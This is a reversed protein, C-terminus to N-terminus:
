PLNKNKDSFDGVFSDTYKKIAIDPNIEKHRCIDAVAFLIEGMSDEDNINGFLDSIAKAQDSYEAAFGEAAAKKQIKCAKTFPPLDKPLAMISSLASKNKKEEQKIQEWSALAEDASDAHVDSFVHPHRRLLKKVIGNVVDSLTFEGLEEAIQSHFVIQLLMDGLEEILNDLDQNNIAEVVEYAEEIINQRISEHTQERDWSCGDENYKLATLESEPPQGRLIRMIDLLAEIDYLKKAFNDLPLIIFNVSFDYLKQRDMDSLCIKAYKTDPYGYFYLIEHDDPYLELLKLKLESVLFKNDAETICTSIHTNVLSKRFLHAPIVSMGEDAIINAIGAFNEAAGACSVMHVNGAFNETIKKVLMDGICPSGPVCLLVDSKEAEGCIYKYMSDYMDDFSEAEDYFRDLTEFQINRNRLEEAVCHTETRCIIKKDANDAEFLLRYAEVTLGNIDKYGLGIVTINKM